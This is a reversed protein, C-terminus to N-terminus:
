VLRYGLKEIADGVRDHILAISSDQLSERWQQPGGHRIHRHTGREHQERLGGFISLNWFARLANVLELGRIDLHVCLDHFLTMHEDAVLEEYRVTRFVRDHDPRDAFAAMRQIEDGMHTDLELRLRDNFDDYSLLKDRFTMGGWRSRPIDLWIEDSRQHYHVASILMDRPDRIFHLGRANPIDSLDPTTAHFDFYVARAGPDAGIRAMEALMFARKDPRITWAPEDTNLHIFEYANHKCARRFTSEMWVTGAKHHTAIFIHPPPM